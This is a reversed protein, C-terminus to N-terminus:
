GFLLTKVIVPVVLGGMVPRGIDIYDESDVRIGDVCVLPHGSNLKSSMFLGLAKAMDHELVVIAPIKDKLVRNFIEALVEALKKIQWYEPNEIGQMALVFADSSSENMFWVAKEVIREADGEFCIRQEQATLKLAPINKLPLIDSACAITSGSITTTYTGAGVVTARITENSSAYLGSKVLASEKISRGLFVGIDDFQFPNEYQKNICDAVGGSFFVKNIIKKQLVLDSSENSKVQDLLPEKDAFGLSQDLLGAMKNTLASLDESSYSEGTRIDLGIADCIRSASPSISRVRRAEDFKILRGGIDFCGKAITEGCDFVVINTTGGGVDLNATICSNDISYQYAGSGKGAIISELDPGATSVVFDGAFNSLNRIVEEANEKRSSEGTVIVAGTSIDELHYGAKKYELAVIDKLAEGDILLDNKLPTNYIDSKYIVEKATVSIRPVSFYGSTNEMSIKCFVLQTTSTGVDIGVSLIDQMVVEFFRLFGRRM